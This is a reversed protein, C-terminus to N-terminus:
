EGYKKSVDAVHHRETWTWVLAIRQKLLPFITTLFREFGM